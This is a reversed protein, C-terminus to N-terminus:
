AQEAAARDVQTMLEAEEGAQNKDETDENSKHTYTHPHIPPHTHMHLSSM